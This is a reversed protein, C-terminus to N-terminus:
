RWINAYLSFSFGPNLAPNFSVMIKRPMKVQRQTQDSECSKSFGKLVMLKSKLKSTYSSHSALFKIWNWIPARFTINIWYAGTTITGACIKRKWMKVIKKEKPLINMPDFFGSTQPTEVAKSIQRLFEELTFLNRVMGYRFAGMPHDNAHLRTHYCGLTCTATFIISQWKTKPCPNSSGFQTLAVQHCALATM